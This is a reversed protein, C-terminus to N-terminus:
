KTEFSLILSVPSINYLYDNNEIAATNAAQLVITTADTITKITGLVANDHAHIVDGPAFATLASVGDVTIEPQAGAAFNAENVQMGSRFDFAGGARGAVYFKDYGTTPLSHSAHLSDNDYNGTFVLDLNGHDNGGGHGTTAVSMIDLDAKYSGAIMSTAGIINNQYGTGNATANIAGISYPTGSDPDIVSEDAFYLDLTRATQPARETGRILATVGMLKCSGKPVEFATWSFMVDAASFAAAHVLSATMTPKVKTAFYGM